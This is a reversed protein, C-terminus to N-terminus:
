RAQARQHGPELLVPASSPMAPTVQVPGAEQTLHAVKFKKAVGDIIEVNCSIKSM